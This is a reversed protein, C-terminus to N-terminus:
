KKSPRTLQVSDKDASLSDKEAKMKRNQSQKWKRENKKQVVNQRLQKVKDINVPTVSALLGTRLSQWLFGIFSDTAERRYLIPAVRAPKRGENTNNARVVMNGLLTLVESKRRKGPDIIEIKLGEYLAEVTGTAVGRRISSAFTVKNVTGDLLRINENPLSILNFATVQMQELYGFYVADFQKSLLNMRVTLDLLGGNMLMTNAKIVMPTRHTMRNPNNTLNTVRINSKNFTIKGPTPADPVQESYTVSAGSIITSDIQVRFNVNRIAEQPMLPRNDKREPARKDRYINLNPNQVHISRAVLSNHFAQELDFGQFTVQPIRLIFRDKQVKSRRVFERDSLRPQLQVSQVNVTRDPRLDLRKVKLEYITDAGVYRYNELSAELKNLLLVLPEQSQRTVSDLRIDRIAIRIHDASQRSNGKPATVTHVIKGKDVIIEGIRLENKLNSLLESFANKETDPEKKGSKKEHTIIIEPENIYVGKLQIKQDSLYDRWAVRRFQVSEINLSMQNKAASDTAPLRAVLATPQLSVSRFSISSTLFNIGVRKIKLEYKGQTAESVRAELTKRITPALGINLWLTIVVITFAIIVITWKVVKGTRSSSIKSLSTRMATAILLFSYGNPIM